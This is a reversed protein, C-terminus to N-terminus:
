LQAERLLAASDLQGFASLHAIATILSQSTDEQSARTIRRMQDDDAPNGQQSQEALRVAEGHMWKVLREREADALHAAAAEWGGTFAAQLENYTQQSCPLGNTHEHLWLHWAATIAQPPVPPSTM